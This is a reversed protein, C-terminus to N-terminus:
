DNNTRKKAILYTAHSVRIQEANITLAEDETNKGKYLLLITSEKMFPLALDYMTKANSVARSTILEYTTPPVQEIRRDLVTVNGMQLVSVAFQLFSARKALPEVLTWDSHPKAMALVLAPFGAGSGIDLGMGFDSLFTLPFVSDYIHKYIDNETKAGTMNHVKGWAILMRCYQAAKVYFDENLILRNGLLM